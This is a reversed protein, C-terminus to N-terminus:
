QLRGESSIPNESAIMRYGVGAETVIYEPSTPDDELKRRLSAMYGRLYQVTNEHVPGWVERLLQKHTLVKGTHRLLIALLRYEIPTLHLEQGKLTVVRSSLDMKLDRTELPQGSPCHAETAHRLSVRIRALLESTGFPKSLYDDAGEDLAQVKDNELERASLVIIPIKSWSRIESIVEIGERDPLGLDLLILDPLQTTTQAIGEKASSAEIIRYDHSSLASRLLKRVQVDDEIILISCGKM